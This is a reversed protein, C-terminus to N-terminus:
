RMKVALRAVSERVDRDDPFKKLMESYHCYAGDIKGSLELVKGLNFASELHEPYKGSANRFFEEAKQLNKEDLYVLGLNNMVDPDDPRIELAELLTKEADKLRGISFYMLGLNKLAKFNEKDLELAKLYDAEAANCDGLNYYAFGRNVYPPAYDPNVSIASNYEELSESIMGRDVLTNGIINYAQASIETKRNDIEIALRLHILAREFEKEQRLIEGVDIRSSARKPDHALTQRFVELAVDPYGQMYLNYAKQHIDGVFEENGSKEKMMEEHYLGAKWSVAATMRGFTKWPEENIHIKTGDAKEVAIVKGLINKRATPRDLSFRADGKTIVDGNSIRVIRHLFRGGDGDKKFLIVDGVQFDKTRHDVLVKEKNLISPEMSTGDIEMKSIAGSEVLIDMIKQTKDNEKV